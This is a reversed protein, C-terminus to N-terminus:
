FEFRLGLMFNTYIMNEAAFWERHRSGDSNVLDWTVKPIYMFRASFDLYTSEVIGYSFGLAGIVAVNVSSPYKDKDTPNDFVIAGTVPDITGYNRLDSDNSLDGYIDSLNLTTKSVAYGLGFGVYPIFQNLPKVNGKYFDYFAMASIVDTTITSKVGSSAVDITDDGIAGGSVGLAGELFPIENYDSEAIHDYGAELRWQTHYPLTFGISAGATFATKKFNEKVPLTALNGYGAPIYGTSPSGANIYGLESIIDGNSENIYYLTYLSGMKNKVKANGMSLGGRLSIVFRSGDDNYYGDNVRYGDYQWGAFASNACLLMLVSFVSIRAKM